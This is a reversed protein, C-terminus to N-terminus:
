SFTEGEIQRQRRNSRRKLKSRPFKQTGNRNALRTGIGPHCFLEAIDLHSACDTAGVALVHDADNNRTMADNSRISRQAAVATSQPALFPQEIVFSFHQSPSYNLPQPTSLFATHRM